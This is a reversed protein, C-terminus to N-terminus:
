RIRLVRRVEEQRDGIRQLMVSDKQQQVRLAELAELIDRDTQVMMAHQQEVAEVRAAVTAIQAAMGVRDAVLTIFVALGALLTALWGPVRFAQVTRLTM